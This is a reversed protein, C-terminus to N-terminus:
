ELHFHKGFRKKFSEFVRERIKKHWRAIWVLYAILVAFGGAIWDFITSRAPIVLGLVFFTASVIGVVWLLLSVHKMLKKMWPDESLMERWIRNLKGRHETDPDKEGKGLARKPDGLKIPADFQKQILEWVTRCVKKFNRVIATISVM